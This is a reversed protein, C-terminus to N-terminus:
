ESLPPFFCLAMLVFKKQDVESYIVVLLRNLWSCAYCSLFAWIGGDVLLRICKFCFVLCLSFCYKSDSISTLKPRDQFVGPLKYIGLSAALLRHVIVDVLWFFLSVISWMWRKTMIFPRYSISVLMDELPRLSILIFCLPLVMIFINRLVLTEM